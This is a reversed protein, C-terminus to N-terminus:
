RDMVDRLLQAGVSKYEGPQIVEAGSPSIQYVIQNVTARVHLKTRGVKVVEGFHAGAAYLWMHPLIRVRDGVAFTSLQERLEDKSHNAM